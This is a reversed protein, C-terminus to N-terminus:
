ENFGLSKAWADLLGSRLAKIGWVPGYSPYAVLDYGVSTFRSGYEPLGEYVFVKYGAHGLIYNKLIDIRKLEARYHGLVTEFKEDSVQPRFEANPEFTYGVIQGYAPDFAGEQMVKYALLCLEKGMWGELCQLAVDAATTAGQLQFSMPRLDEWYLTYQSIGERLIRFPGVSIERQGVLGEVAEAMSIVRRYVAVATPLDQGYFLFQMRM